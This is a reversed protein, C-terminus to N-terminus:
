IEEAQNTLIMKAKGQLSLTDGCPVIFSDGARFATGSITGRGELVNVATFSNEDKASFTGDLILERCTFYPCRTVLRM